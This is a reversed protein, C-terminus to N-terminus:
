VGIGEGVATMPRFTTSPLIDKIEQVYDLFPSSREMAEGRPRPLNIPLQRLIRGPRASMVVVSDSLLVAEPVSHTVFVM